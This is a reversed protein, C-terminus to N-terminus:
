ERKSRKADLLETNEFKNGIVEMRTQNCTNIRFSSSDNNLFYCGKLFVIEFKKIFNEFTVIDGDYIEKGNKDKLGTFQLFITEIPFFPSGEEMMEKNKISGEVYEYLSFGEGMVKMKDNWAKFKIERNM